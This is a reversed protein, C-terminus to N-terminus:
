PMGADQSFKYLHPAGEAGISWLRSGFLGNLFNGLMAHGLFAGSHLDESGLLSAVRCLLEFALSM